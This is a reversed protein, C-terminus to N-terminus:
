CGPALGSSCGGGSTTWTIGYQTYAPTLIYTDTTRIGNSNVPVVTIVGDVVTVSAVQGSGGTMNPPIGYAGADCDALVGKRQHLCEAVATKYRIATQIIESYYAKRTYHLYTPVAIAALIAIIAIAILLELLTLGLRKKKLAESM